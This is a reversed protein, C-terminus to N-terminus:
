KSNKYEDYADYKFYSKLKDYLKDYLEDSDTELIIKNVLELLEETINKSDFIQPINLEKFDDKYKQKENDDLDFYIDKALEVLEKSNLEDVFSDISIPLDYEYIDNDGFIYKIKM